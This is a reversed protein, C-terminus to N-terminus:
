AAVPESRWSTQHKIMSNLITLLKRMCAVIAVKPRKGSALLRNYFAKIVWNHRTMTITAMFLVNRVMKRGGWVRRHGRWAGSDCNLPAVGALTAIQKRNLRGLEPMQSILTMGLVKGVGPVQRILELRNRLEPDLQIAQHIKEELTKIEKELWRIHREIDRRFAGTAQELRNREQSVMDVLQRRRKVLEQVEQEQPSAPPRDEPQVREGFEALVQADIADTKALRGMAKAFDRVRRPNVVVVPLNTKRLLAVVPREYGGTAELIIGTPKQEQIRRALKQLSKLSTTVQWREGRPHSYVDLVMKSVDIGIWVKNENM